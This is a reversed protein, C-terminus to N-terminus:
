LPCMVSSFSYLILQYVCKCIGSQAVESFGETTGKYGNFGLMTDVCMEHLEALIALLSGTVEWRDIAPARAKNEPLYHRRGKIAEYLNM